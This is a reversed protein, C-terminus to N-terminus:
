CDVTEKPVTGSVLYSEVTSDVCENGRLYGTHGDGDRRVLVGSELQEALAEAWELPTAPDRTTGVVLIPAAGTATLEEPVRGTHIPWQACSSLSYAFMRGFTPSAREFRPMHQDVDSSSIADDHDLCNVAYLVELSNSLYGDAGRSIYADALSLLPGGDGGFASRLATDLFDWYDERYLPLWIGLM